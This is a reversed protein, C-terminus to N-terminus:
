PTPSLGAARMAAERAARVAPDGGSAPAVTPIPERLASGQVFEVAAPRPLPTAAAADGGVPVRGARFASADSPDPPRRAPLGPAVAGLAYDCVGEYIGRALRDRGAETRILALDDPSTLFGCEVLAAPIAAERLVVFRARRLGRDPLRSSALLRRQICFGLRVNDADHANGRWAHRSEPSAGKGSWSTSEMGRAPFVYTELGRSVPSGASNFHISVFVDARWREALVPREDLVLTRGESERTMMVEFGDRELLRRVRRAVDLTMAQERTRGDKSAAGPDQGGHGPDLCVRFPRGRVLPADPADYLPGLTAKADLASPETRRTKRNTAAPAGLHVEVGDVKAVTSGHRLDTRWPKAAPRPPLAPVAPAKPAPALAAAPATAPAAAPVTAPAPAPLAAPANTPAAPADPAVAAAVANTGDASLGEPEEDDEGSGFSLCGSCLASLAACLRAAAAAKEFRFWAM